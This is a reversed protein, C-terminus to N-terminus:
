RARWRSRRKATASRTRRTLFPLARLDAGELFLLDFAYYIAAAEDSGLTQQLLQFNSRGDPGLAVLEGDVIANTTKLKKAAAALSPMKTTWDHGNRTLLSVDSGDIRVLIRYGDLKVEHAWEDGTPPDKSLTALEPAITTPPAAREPM